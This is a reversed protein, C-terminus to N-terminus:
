QMVQKTYLLVHVGPSRTEVSLVGCDHWTAPKSSMSTGDPQVGPKFVTNPAFVMGGADLAVSISGSVFQLTTM